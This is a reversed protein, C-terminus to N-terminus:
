ELRLELLGADVLEAGAPRPEDVVPGSQRDDARGVLVVWDGLALGREDADVDPLVGVVQLVLVPAGVVDVRPPVGDVPALDGLAVLRDASRRRTWIVSEVVGVAAQRRGAACSRCGHFPATCCASDGKEPCRGADVPRRWAVARAMFGIM